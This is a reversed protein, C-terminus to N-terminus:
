KKRLLFAGYLGAIAITVLEITLLLRSVIADPAPPDLMFRLGLFEPEQSPPAEWPPFIVALILAAVMSYLARLNLSEPTDQPAVPKAAAPPQDQFSYADLRQGCQTCYRNLEPLERRCSPCLKM